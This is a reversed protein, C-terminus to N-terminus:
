ENHLLGIRAVWTSSGEITVRRATQVEAFAFRIDLHESPLYPGLREPWEILSVGTAFAEEIDLEFADQASELRYLDFHWLEFEPLDYTQVLTFTPSPVEADHEGLARILARAFTTKGAGLDGGLALVDGRHLQPALRQALAETAAIDPLEIEM